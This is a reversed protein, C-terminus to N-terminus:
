TSSGTRADNRRATLTSPWTTSGALVVNWPLTVAASRDPLTFPTACTATRKERKENSSSTTLIWVDDYARCASDVFFFSAAFTPTPAPAPASM